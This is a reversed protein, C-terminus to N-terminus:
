SERIIKADDYQLIGIQVALSVFETMTRAYVGMIAQVRNFGETDGIDISEKQADIMLQQVKQLSEYGERIQSLRLDDIAGNAHLEKATKAIFIATEKTISLTRYSQQYSDQGSNLVCGSIL